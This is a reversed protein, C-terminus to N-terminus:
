PSVDFDGANLLFLGAPTHMWDIGQVATSGNRLVASPPVVIAPFFTVVPSSVTFPVLTNLAGNAVTLRTVNFTNSIVLDNAPQDLVWDFKGFGGVTRRVDFHFYRTDEVALVTGSTPITLTHQELWDCVNAATEIDWTHNPVATPVITAVYTGGPNANRFRNNQPPVYPVIEKDHWLMWRPVHALNTHLTKLPDFTGPALPDFDVGSSAAMLLPWAGSTGFPLNTKRYGFLFNLTRWAQDKMPQHFRHTDAISLGGSLSVVAAIMPKLPNLHRAAHNVAWNGGMSFGVAYIRDMDILGQYQPQALVWDLVAETNTHADPFAFNQKVAGTPLVMFWERADCEAPYGTSTLIEQYSHAYSHFVILLPRPTTPLPTPEQVAFPELWMSSTVLPTPEVITSGQPTVVPALSLALAALM